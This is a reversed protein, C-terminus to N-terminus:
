LNDGVHSDITGADGNATAPGLVIRHVNAALDRIVDWDGSIDHSHALNNRLDQLGRVFQEVARRSAFRTHGRLAENRSVIKGKDSFHLCELLSPRQHRRRREEQLEAAIRVRGESLYQQWSDQPCVKDILRTMRLEMITILGFLWMRMPAKQLDSVRIVASVEGFTRLFLCQEPRLKEVVDNLSASDAIVSSEDFPRVSPPQLDSSVDSRSVWGVTVGAERIGVVELQQSEMAARVTGATATNDFSRLPEAIDRATFGNLFVNLSGDFESM